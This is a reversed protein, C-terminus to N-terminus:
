AMSAEPLRLVGVEIAKFNWLTLCSLGGTFWDAFPGAGSQDLPGVGPDSLGGFFLPFGGLAHHHVSLPISDSLLPWRFSTRVCGSFVWLVLAGLPFAKSGM